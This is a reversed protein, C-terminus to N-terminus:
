AAGVAPVALGYREALIGLHHEAHGATIHALARASVPMGSAMGRRNWADPEIADFLLNSSARVAEFEALLGELSRRHYRGAAVYQNEEFSALPTADGRSIRFARYSFVRESDVLHGVVEKISWKDAAYRRLADADSLGACAARLREPQRRLVERADADGLAAIYGAYFPAYEDDHPRPIPQM